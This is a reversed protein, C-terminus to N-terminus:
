VRPTLKLARKRQKGNYLPTQASYEEVGEFVNLRARAHIYTHINGENKIEALNHASCQAFNAICELLPTPSCAFYFFRYINGAHQTGCGSHACECVGVFHKVYINAFKEFLPSSNFCM